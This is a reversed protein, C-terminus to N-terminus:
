VFILLNNIVVLFVEVLFEFGDGKYKDPSYRAPNMESQKELRSMFTSLKNVGEFLGVLDHSRHPFGHLIDIKM